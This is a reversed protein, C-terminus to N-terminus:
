GRTIRNACACPSRPIPTLRCTRCRRDRWRCSSAAATRGCCRTARVPRGRRRDRGEGVRALPERGDGGRRRRRHLRRRRARVDRPFVLRRERRPHVRHTVRRPGPRVSRPRAREIGAARAVSPNSAPLTRTAFIGGEHAVRWRRRARLPQRDRVARARDFVISDVHYVDGPVFQELVYEAFADGLAEISQWLEERRAAQPHRDGGGARAAEAGLAAARAGDVRRDGRQQARARVRPVPHGRRAGAAADGAQRPVGPGDDGGHGARLLHERLM